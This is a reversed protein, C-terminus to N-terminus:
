SSTDAVKGLSKVGEALLLSIERREQDLWELREKALVEAKDAVM